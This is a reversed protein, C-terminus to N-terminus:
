GIKGQQVHASHVLISGAYLGKRLVSGICYSEGIAIPRKCHWCPTGVLSPIDLIESPKMIFRTEGISVELQEAQQSNVKRLM